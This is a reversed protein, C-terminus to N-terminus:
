KPLQYSDPMPLCTLWRFFEIHSGTFFLVTDRAFCSKWDGVSEDDMTMMMM